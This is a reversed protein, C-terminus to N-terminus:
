AALRNPLDSSSKRFRREFFDPLEPHKSMFWDALETSWHDNIKFERDGKEVSYHWRIQHLIAHSSFHTYGLSAVRLAIKEYLHRVDTPIQDELM